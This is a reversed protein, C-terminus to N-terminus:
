RTAAIIRELPIIAQGSAEPQRQAVPDPPPDARRGTPEVRLQPAVLREADSSLISMLAGGEYYLPVFLSGAIVQDSVLIPIEFSGADGNV